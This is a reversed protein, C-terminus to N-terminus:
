WQRSLLRHQSSSPMWVRRADPSQSCEFNRSTQIFLVLAATVSSDTAFARFGSVDNAGFAARGEFVVSVRTEGPLIGKTDGDRDVPLPASLGITSTSSAAVWLVGSAKTSWPSFRSERRLTSAVLAVFGIMADHIGSGAGAGVTLSTPVRRMQPAMSFRRASFSLAFQCLCNLSFSASIASSFLSNALRVDAVRFSSM